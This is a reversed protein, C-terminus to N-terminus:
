FMSPSLIIFMYSLEILYTGSYLPVEVLQYINHIYWMLLKLGGNFFYNNKLIIKNLHIKNLLM